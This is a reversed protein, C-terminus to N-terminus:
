QPEHTRAHDPVLGQYERLLHLDHVVEPNPHDLGQDAAHLDPPPEQALDQGETVIVAKRKMFGSEEGVLNQIMLNPSAIVSITVVPLSWLVKELEEKIPMQM